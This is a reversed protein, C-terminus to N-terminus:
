VANEPTADDEWPRPADLVGALRNQHDKITNQIRQFADDNELALGQYVEEVLEVLRRETLLGQSQSLLAWTSHLIGAPRAYVRESKEEHRHVVVRGFKLLRARNARGARQVLADFPRVRDIARRLRHRALGRGGANRHTVAQQMHYYM